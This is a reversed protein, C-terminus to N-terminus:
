RSPESHTWLHCWYSNFQVGLGNVLADADDAVVVGAHHVDRPATAEIGADRKGHRIAAAKM